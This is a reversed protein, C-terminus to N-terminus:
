SIDGLIQEQCFHFVKSMFLPESVDDIIEFLASKDSLIRRREFRNFFQALTLSIIKTTFDIVAPLVRGEKVPSYNDAGDAGSDLPNVSKEESKIDSVIVSYPTPGSQSLHYRTVHM